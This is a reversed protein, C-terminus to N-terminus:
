PTSPQWSFLLKAHPPILLDQDAAFHIQFANIISFGPHELLGVTGLTVLLAAVRLRGIKRRFVLLAIIIALGILDTLPVQQQTSV